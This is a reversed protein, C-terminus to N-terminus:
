AVVDQTDGAITPELFSFGLNAGASRLAESVAVFSFPKDLQDATQKTSYLLQLGPTDGDAIQSLDIVPNLDSQLYEMLATRTKEVARIDLQGALILVQGSEDRTVQM